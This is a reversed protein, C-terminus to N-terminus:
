GGLQQNGLQEFRTGFLQAADDLHERARQAAERRVHTDEPEHVALEARAADIVARSDLTAPHKPAGPINAAFRVLLRQVTTIDAQGPLRDVASAINIASILFDVRPSLSGIVRREGPWTSVALLGRVPSLRDATLAACLYYPRAYPALRFSREEDRKLSTLKSSPFTAAFFAQHVTAILKPASPVTLLSLAEHVQERLPLLTQYGAYTSNAAAGNKATGNKATGDDASAQELETDQDSDFLAHWAQEAARLDARLARVRDREAAHVASRLDTRLRDIRRELDDAQESM